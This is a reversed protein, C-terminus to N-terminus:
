ETCISLSMFCYNHIIKFTSGCRRLDSQNVKLQINAAEIFLKKGLVKIVQRQINRLATEKIHTHSYGDTHTQTHTHTHIYTVYGHTDWRKTPINACACM